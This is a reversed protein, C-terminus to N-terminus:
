PNHETPPPSKGKKGPRHRAQEIRAIVIASLRMLYVMLILVAFVTVIGYLAQEAADGWM